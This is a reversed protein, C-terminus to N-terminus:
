PPAPAAPYARRSRDTTTTYRRRGAGRRAALRLNLPQASDGTKRQRALMARSCIRMATIWIPFLARASQVLDLAAGPDRVAGRGGSRHQRLGRQDQNRDVVRGAGPTGEDGPLVPERARGATGRSMGGLADSRGPSSTSWRPSRPTRRRRRGVTTCRAACRCLGRIELTRAQAQGRHLVEGRAERDSIATKVLQQHWRWRM